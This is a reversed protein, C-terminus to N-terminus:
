NENTYDDEGDSCKKWFVDDQTVFTDRYKYYTRSITSSNSWITQHIVGTVYASVAPQGQEYLYDWKEQPITSLIVWIEQIIDEMYGVNLPKNLLYTSYWEVLHTDYLWKLITDRNGDKLKIEATLVRKNYWKNRANTASSRDEMNNM